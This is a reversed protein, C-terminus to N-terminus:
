RPVEPGSPAKKQEKDYEDQSICTKLAQMQMELSYEPTRTLDSVFKEVRTYMGPGGNGEAARWGHSTRRMIYGDITSVLRGDPLRLLFFLLGRRRSHSLFLVTSYPKGTMSSDPVGTAAYHYPISKTTKSYGLYKLWEPGPAACAAAASAEAAVLTSQTALSELSLLMICAVLLVTRKM